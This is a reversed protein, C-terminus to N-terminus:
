EGRAEEFSNPFQQQDEKSDAVLKLQHYELL